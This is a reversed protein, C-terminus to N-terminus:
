PLSWSSAQDNMATGVYATGPYNIKLYSGTLNYHEYLTIGCSGTRASSVRDNWGTTMNNWGSCTDAYVTLTSGGYDADEYLYAQIAIDPSFLVDDSLSRSTERPALKIRGGSAKYLAGAETNFCEMPKGPGTICYEKGGDDSGDTGSYSAGAMSINTDLAHYHSASVSASAVRSTIPVLGATYAPLTSITLSSLALLSILAAKARRRAIQMNM